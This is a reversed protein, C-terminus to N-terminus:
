SNKLIVEFSVLDIVEAPALDPKLAIIEKKFYSQKMFGLLQEKTLQTVGKLSPLAETLALSTVDEPLCGLLITAFIASLLGITKMKTAARQISKLFQNNKIGFYM